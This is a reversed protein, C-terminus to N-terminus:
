LLELHAISGGVLEGFLLILVNLIAIMSMGPYFFRRERGQAM